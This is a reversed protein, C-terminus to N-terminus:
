HSYILHIGTGHFYSSISIRMEHVLETPLRRLILGKGIVVGGHHQYSLCDQMDLPLHLVIKTHKASKPTVKHRYSTGGFGKFIHDTKISYLTYYKNRQWM